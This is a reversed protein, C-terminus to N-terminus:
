SFLDMQTMGDVKLRAALAPDSVLIWSSPMCRDRWREQGNIEFLEGDADAPECDFPPRMLCASERNVRNWVTKNRM